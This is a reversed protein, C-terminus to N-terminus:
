GRLRADLECLLAAFRDGGRLAPPFRLLVSGVTDSALGAAWSIRAEGVDLGGGADLELALAQHAAAGLIHKVQHADALPHLYAAAAAHSAAYAANAATASEAERAAKYAAWATARLVATRRGGAAFAEAAVIAQGPRADESRTSEFLPLVCRACTAAYAAVARLEDEALSIQIRRDTTM